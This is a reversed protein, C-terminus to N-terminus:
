KDLKSGEFLGGFCGPEIPGHFASDGPNDCAHRSQRLTLIRSCLIIKLLIGSTTSGIDDSACAKQAAELIIDAGSLYRIVKREVASGAALQM